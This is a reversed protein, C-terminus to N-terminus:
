YDHLHHYVLHTRSSSSPSSQLTAAVAASSSSSRAWVPPPDTVEYYESLQDDDDYDDDDDEQVDNENEHDVLEDEPIVPYSHRRQRNARQMIIPSLPLLPPPPPPTREIISSAPCRCIPCTANVYLWQSLCTSHYEHQCPMQIIEVSAGFPEQCITCEQIVGSEEHGFTRKTLREICQEIDSNTSMQPTEMPDSFIDMLSGMFGQHYSYHTDDMENDSETYGQYIM